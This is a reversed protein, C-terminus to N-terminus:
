AHATYTVLARPVNLAIMIQQDTVHTALHVAHQELVMQRSSM